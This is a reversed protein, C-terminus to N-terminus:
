IIITKSYDTQVVTKEAEKMSSAKDGCKLVMKTRGAQITNGDQIFFQDNAGLRKNQDSLLFTGNMSKNDYLLYEFKGSSQKIVELTFHCRSMYTDATDIMIDSPKKESIRGVTNKGIKLEFTQVPAQEDHVVLWGPIGPLPIPKPEPKPPVPQPKPTEPVKGQSLDVQNMKGCQSCKFKVLNGNFDAPLELQLKAKCNGCSAIM